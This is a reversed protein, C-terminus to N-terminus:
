ILLRVAPRCWLYAVAIIQDAKEEMTIATNVMFDDANEYTWQLEDAKAGVGLNYLMVDRETYTMEDVLPERGKADKIADTDQTMRVIRAQNPVPLM